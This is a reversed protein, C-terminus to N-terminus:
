RVTKPQDPNAVSFALGAIGAISKPRDDPGDFRPALDPRARLSHATLEVAPILVFV